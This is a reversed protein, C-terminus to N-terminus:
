DLLHQQHPELRARLFTSYPASRRVMARLAEQAVPDDPDRVLRLQADLFRILAGHVLNRLERAKIRGASGDGQYIRRLEAATNQAATDAPDSAAFVFLVPDGTATLEMRQALRAVDDGDAPFLYGGEPLKRRRRNNCDAHAPYLNTWDFARDPRQAQPDRHDVQFCGPAIAGECLYCKELFDEWLAELVDEGTWSTGEALSPPAEARRQVNM